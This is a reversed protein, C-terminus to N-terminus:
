YPSCWYWCQGVKMSQVWLKAKARQLTRWSFGAKQADAQIQTVPVTDHHLLLILFSVARDLLHIKPPKYRPEELNLSNGDSDFLIGYQAFRAEPCLTFKRYSRNRDLQIKRVSM